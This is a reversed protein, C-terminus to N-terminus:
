PHTLFKPTYDRLIRYSPLINNTFMPLLSALDDCCKSMMEKRYRSRHKRTIILENIFSVQEKNPKIASENNWNFCSVFCKVDCFIITKWILFLQTDKSWQACNSNSSLIFVFTLCPVTVKNNNSNFQNRRLGRNCFDSEHKKPLPTNRRKTKVSGDSLM